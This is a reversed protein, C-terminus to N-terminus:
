KSEKEKLYNEWEEVTTNKVKFTYIRGEQEILEYKNNIDEWSVKENITAKIIPYQRDQKVFIGLLTFLIASLLTIAQGESGNRALFIFGIFYLIGVIILAWGLAPDAKRGGFNEYLINM